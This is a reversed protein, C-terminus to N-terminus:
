VREDEQRSFKILWQGFAKIIMPIILGHACALALSWLERRVLEPPIQVKQMQFRTVDFFFIAFAAIIGLRQAKWSLPSRRLVFVSFFYCIVGLYIAKADSSLLFINDMWRTLSEYISVM